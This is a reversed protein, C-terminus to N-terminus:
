AARASLANIQILASTFRTMQLRPSPGATM